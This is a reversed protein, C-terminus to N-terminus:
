PTILLTSGLGSEVVDIAVYIADVGAQCSMTGYATNNLFWPGGSDGSEALDFGPGGPDSDVRIGITGSGGGGCSGSSVSVIFGLLYSTARRLVPPVGAWLTDLTAYM